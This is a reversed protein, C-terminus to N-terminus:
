GYPYTDSPRSIDAKVHAFLADVFENTSIQGAKFAEYTETPFPEFVRAAQVEHPSLVLTTTSTDGSPNDSNM